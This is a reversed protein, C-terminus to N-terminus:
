GASASTSIRRLGSIAMLRPRSPALAPSPDRGPSRRCARSGPPASAGMWPSGGSGVRPLCPSGSAGSRAQRSRFPASSAAGRSGSGRMGGARRGGIPFLTIVGTPTIRGIGNASDLTFWLNGDAGAAIGYPMSKALPVPFTRVEGDVSLRGIVNSYFGTFWIAGDPGAALAFLGAGSPQNPDAPLPFEQVTGDASIAGIANNQNDTFWQRGDPGSIVVSGGYGAPGLNFSRFQGLPAAAAPAVVSGPALLAAAALGPLWRRWSRSGRENRAAM